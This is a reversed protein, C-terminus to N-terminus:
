INKVEGFRGNIGDIIGKFIAKVNDKINKEYIITNLFFIFFCVNKKICFWGNSWFYKKIIYIHNRSIYYKRMNSHIHICIKHGFLSKEIVQGLSHMMIANNCVIVILKKCILKLCFDFDVSDIFLKEEYGGVEKISSIKVLNGSTIVASTEYYENHKELSKCSKEGNYIIRPALCSIRVKRDNPISSYVKIMEDIMNDSVISDQDMTLVWSFDREEAYKVGKNLAYAIGYNRDNEIIVIRNDRLDNIYKLTEDTSHNDVVIIYSVNKLLHSITQLITEIGNYTIIIACIDKKNIVNSDM